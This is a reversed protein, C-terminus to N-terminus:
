LPSLTFTQAHRPFRKWEEKKWFEFSERKVIALVSKSRHESEDSFEVFGVSPVWKGNVMWNEDLIIYEKLRFHATDATHRLLTFAKEPRKRKRM